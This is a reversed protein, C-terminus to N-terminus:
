FTLPIGTICRGINLLFTEIRLGLPHMLTTHLMKNRLSRTSFIFYENLLSEM